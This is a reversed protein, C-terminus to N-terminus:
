TGVSVFKTKVQEFMRTEYLGSIVKIDSIEVTLYIVDARQAWLVSPHLTMNNYKIFFFLSFSFLKSADWQFLFFQFSDPTEFHLQGQHRM